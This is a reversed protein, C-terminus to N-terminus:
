VDLFIIYPVLDLDVGAETAFDLEVGVETVFDLEVGAGTVIRGVVYAVEGEVAGSGEEGPSDRAGIRVNNQDGDLGKKNKAMPAKVCEWAVEREPSIMGRAVILMHQKAKLRDEVRHGGKNASRRCLYHSNGSKQNM